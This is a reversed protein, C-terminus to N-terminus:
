GQVLHLIPLSLRACILYRVCHNPHDLIRVYGILNNRDSATDGNM